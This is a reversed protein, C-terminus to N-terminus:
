LLSWDSADSMAELAAVKVLDANIRDMMDSVVRTFEDIPIYRKQLQEADMFLPESATTVPTGEVETDNKKPFNLVLVKDWITLDEPDLQELETENLTYKTSVFFTVTRATPNLKAQWRHFVNVSEESM